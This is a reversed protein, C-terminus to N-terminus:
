VRLFGSRGRYHIARISKTAKRLYAENQIAGSERALLM